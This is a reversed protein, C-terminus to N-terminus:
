RVMGAFYEAAYGAAKVDQPDPVRPSRGGAELAEALEQAERGSRALRPVGGAHQAAEHFGWGRRLSWSPGCVERLKGLSKQDFSYWATWEALPNPYNRDGVAKPGLGVAAKRAQAVAQVMATRQRAEPPLLDDGDTNVFWDAHESFVKEVAEVLAERHGHLVGRVKGEAEKTAEATIQRARSAVEGATVARFCVERWDDALMDAMSPKGPVHEILERCRVLATLPDQLDQLLQVPVVAGAAEVVQLVRVDVRATKAQTVVDAVTLGDTKAMM